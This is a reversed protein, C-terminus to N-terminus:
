PQAKGELQSITVCTYGKSELYTLISDLADATTPHIDHMLIIAGPYLHQKVANLTSAANRTKWDLTDVGWLVTPQSLQQELAHNRAGYPPRITLPEIGTAKKILTNSREINKLANAATMKSLNEHGYSHNGIEHGAKVVAKATAPAENVSKGLMYFTAKANHKKLTKLIRPTVNKNPGDDFTLAVYKKGHTNLSFVPIDYKQNLRDLPITVSTLKDTFTHPQYYIKLNNGDLSFDHFKAWTPETLQDIKKASISLDKNKQQLEIRVEKSLRNLRVDTNVIDQISKLKKTHRDYTFTQATTMVTRDKQLEKQKVIFSVKKGSTTTTISLVLKKADSQTYMDRKKYIKKQIVDDVEEVGTLPYMLTYNEARSVEKNYLIGKVPSKESTVVVKNVDQKKPKTPEESIKQVAGALNQGTQNSNLLVFFCGVLVILVILLALNVKGLKTKPFWQM